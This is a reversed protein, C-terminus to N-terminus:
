FALGISFHVAGWKEDLKPMPNLGVDLRVPGFPLGYRLGLGVAYRMEDFGADSHDGALNGADIFFAGRLADKLPFTVEANFMTFAEGGIPNGHPERPGLERERFSRVSNPGGNFFREDIPVETFPLIVGARAGLALIVKPTFLPTFYTVRASARGFALEGAIAGADIGTSVIYGKIPNERPQRFDFTQTLGVSVLQYSTSGLYIPDIVESTVDVNKGQLFVGFEVNPNLKRTLDARFGTESKDYGTETRTQAFVRTRLGFRSELFWPDVYLLEAKLGRQSYDVDLSLPRGNGFLDRDALRLGAIAGEYTSYGLSFGIEKAKAEEATFDARVENTPLPVTNIRLNTFLGTNLVERYREDLLQPTYVKGKLDGFRHEFFGPKLRDLGAVTVGDFRYVPGAKVHFVVPVLRNNLRGPTTNKPDATASVTAAYYGQTKYYYLLNHEMANLRQTTYPNTIPEGLGNILQDRGFAPEGVFEINGFRYLPGETIKVTVDAASRDATYTIIPDEVKAELRGESEYYGRVRAVGSGMDGEVFPVAPAKKTDREETGGIMYEYLTNRDVQKNGVFEVHRLYTRKGEKITLKLRGGVIAWTVDAEPYGQQHYYSALYFAADDARPPTLGERDIEKIQETMPQKLQDATFSTNGIFDILGTTKAPLPKLSDDRPMPKFRGVRTGSAPTAPPPAALASATCLLTVAFLVRM